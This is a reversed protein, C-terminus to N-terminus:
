SISKLKEIVANILDLEEQTEVKSLQDFGVNPDYASITLNERGQDDLSHDTYAIYGKNTQNCIFTFYIDFEKRQGDVEAILKNNNM